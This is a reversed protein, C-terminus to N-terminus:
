KGFKPMQKLPLSAYDFRGSASPLSASPLKKAMKSAPLDKAAFTGTLAYTGDANREFRELTVEVDKDGKSQYFDFMANAKPRYSFNSSTLALSKDDFTMALDVQAGDSATGKLSVQLSKIIDVQMVSADHFTKGAMGEVMERVDDAGVRSEVGLKELKRNADDIARQGKGTDLKGEVQAGIDDAVKTALSRFSQTGNGVDAEISGQITQGPKLPADGTSAAGAAQADGEAQEVAAQMGSATDAPATTSTNGCASLAAVVVALSATKRMQMQFRIM